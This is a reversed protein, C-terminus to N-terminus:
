ANGEKGITRVADERRKNGMKRSEAYRRILPIQEKDPVANIYTAFENKPNFLEDDHGGLDIMDLWMTLRDAASMEEEIKKESAIAAKTAAKESLPRDPRKPTDDPPLERPPPIPTRDFGLGEVIEEKVYLKGFEDPWVRRLGQSEAVKVIMEAQKEKVWFQTVAGASTKKIYRELPVTWVKEVDWGAPQARFWGGVLTEGELVLCGEREKLLGDDGKLVIGCTWGRCDEQAKARARYYDISVITAAPDGETYKVLYCDKKFPNLGRAKAMGMYLMIEQDTVADAKGSVLYKRVVDFSLRIEQGDRSRYVTLGRDEPAKAPVPTQTKAM